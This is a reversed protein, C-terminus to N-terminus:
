SPCDRPSPRKSCGVGAFTYYFYGPLLSFSLWLPCSTALFVPDNELIAWGKWSGAQEGAAVADDTSMPTVDEASSGVTSTAQTSATDPVPEAAPQAIVNDDDVTTEASRTQVM